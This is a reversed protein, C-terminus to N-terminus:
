VQNKKSVYVGAVCLAAVYLLGGIMGVALGSQTAATTNVASYMNDLWYSSFQFRDLKLFTDVLGVALSVLMPAVICGAIAGGSKKTVSAILGFLATYALMIVLQPVLPALESLKLANETPFIVMGGVFAIAFCIIAMVVCWVSVTIIKCLFVEARKYGKSYINKIIGDSNDESVFLATFIALIMSFSCSSLASVALSTATPMTAGLLEGAGNDWMSKTTLLSLFSLCVLIISCVKMSKQHLLKHFEFKLLRNM